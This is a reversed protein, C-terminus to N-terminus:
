DIVGMKNVWRLFDDEYVGTMSTTQGNMFKCFDKYHKTRLIEKIREFKIEM